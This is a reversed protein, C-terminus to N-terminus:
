HPLFAIVEFAILLIVVVEAIILTKSFSLEQAMSYLDELADIKHTVINEYENVKLLRVIHGYAGQYYWDSTVKLPNTLDELNDLIDLKMESM